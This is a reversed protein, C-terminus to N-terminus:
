RRRDSPHGLDSRHIPTVSKTSYRESLPPVKPRSLWNRPILKLERQMILICAITEKVDYYELRISTYLAEMDSDTRLSTQFAQRRYTRNTKHVKEVLAHYASGVIPSDLDLWRRHFSLAEQAEGIMVALESQTQPTGDHRRYIAYPLQKYREVAALAEAYYRAKNGLRTLRGNIFYGTLGAVAAIAAVIIPIWDRM